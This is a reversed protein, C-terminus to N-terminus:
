IARSRRFATPNAGTEARFMRAFAQPTEYGVAAAVDGISTDTALLLEKARECRLRRLYAHPPVGVSRRFARAFHFASLGAAASLADLRVSGGLHAALYETARREQWPALGGRRHRPPAGGRLRLMHGVLSLVLGDALLPEADVDRFMGDLLRTVAHDRIPGAHLTGFDGDAPLSRASAVGLSLLPRYPVAVVRCLHNAEMLVSSGAHPAVLIAEGRRMRGTFRGAGLDLAFAAPEPSSMYGIILEPTPADSWDGRTQRAELLTTGLSGFSRRMTLHAGYAEAYFESFTAYDRPRRVVGGAKAPRQFAAGHM